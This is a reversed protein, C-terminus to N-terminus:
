GSRRLLPAVIGVGLVLSAVEFVVYTYRPGWVFAAAVLPLLTWRAKPRWGSEVTASGPRWKWIWSRDWASDVLILFPLVYLVNHDGDFPTTFGASFLTRVWVALVPAALPLLWTMLLLLHERQNQVDTDVAISALHSPIPSTSHSRHNDNSDENTRPMLPIAVAEPAKYVPHAACTYLQYIWCGLFGVQWPVLLFITICILGISILTSLRPPSSLSPRRRCM